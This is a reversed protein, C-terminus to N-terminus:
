GERSEGFNQAEARLLGAQVRLIMERAQEGTLAADRLLGAIREYAASEEGHLQIESAFTEVFTADDVMLFGNLAAISPEAGFPVIGLTLNPMGALGLLRDLQAAMVDPPCLGARLAAESFLFEFAKTRDHLVDQLALRAAVTADVEDASAGYVRVNELVRYRAYGATQVLGPILMIEFNCVRSASRLLTGLDSQLAVQGRRLEHRWQRHRARGAALEELLAHTAETDADCARTWEQVDLESPAQRGNELKSIKSRPWGLNTALVEGTLGAAKRM